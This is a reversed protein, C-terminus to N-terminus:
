ASVGASRCGCCGAPRFSGRRWHGAGQHASHFGGAAGAKGTSGAPSGKGAPIWGEEQGRSSRGPFLYKTVEPVRAVTVMSCVCSRTQWVLQRRLGTRSPKGERLTDTAYWHSPTQTRGASPLGGLGLPHAWSCSQCITALWLAGHQGGGYCGPQGAPAARPDFPGGQSDARGLWELGSDSPHGPVGTFICHRWTLGTSACGSKM